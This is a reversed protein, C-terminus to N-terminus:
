LAKSVIPILWFVGTAASIFGSAMVTFRLALPKRAVHTLPLSIVAAMLAMGLTAGAGYLAIFSLAWATSQTRAIVLAALAGSGALGHTLGVLLPSASFTQKFMHVHRGISTHEHVLDGHQHASGPAAHAHAAHLTRALLISRVGLGILVLGVLGEFADSLREPLEMRVAALIGGVCLLMLAHGVGWTAAFAIRKRSSHEGVVMTSVAALHDPEFAHRLGQALGVIAAFLFSALM